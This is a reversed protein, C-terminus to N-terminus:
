LVCMSCNWAAVVGDRHGSYLLEAVPDYSMGTVLATNLQSALVPLTATAPWSSSMLASLDWVKCTKDAAGAHCWVCSMVWLQLVFGSVQVTHQKDQVHACCVLYVAHIMGRHCHRGNASVTGQKFVLWDHQNLFLSCAQLTEAHERVM